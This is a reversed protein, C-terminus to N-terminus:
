LGTSVSPPSSTSDGGSTPDPEKFGVVIDEVQEWTVDFGERRLKIWAITQTRDSEKADEGLLAAFSKGMAELMRMERPTLRLAISDASLLVETPLERPRPPFPVAESTM